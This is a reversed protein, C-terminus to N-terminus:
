DSRRDPSSSPAEPGDSAEAADAPEATEKQEAPTAEAADAPEATEKQEEPTAEAGAEEHAKQTVSPLEGSPLEVQMGGYQYSVLADAPTTDSLPVLILGEKSRPLLFILIGLTAAMLLVSANYFHM